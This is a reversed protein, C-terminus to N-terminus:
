SEYTGDTVEEREHIDKLNCWYGDFLTTIKKTDKPMKFPKNYEWESGDYAGRTMYIDDNFVIILDSAVKVGSFGSDYERDALKIYEEWTCQYGSYQSGIFKIDAVEHGSENIDHITEALLNM